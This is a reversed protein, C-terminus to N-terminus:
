RKVSPVAVVKGIQTEIGFREPQHTQIAGLAVDLFGGLNEVDKLRFTSIPTFRGSKARKSIILKTKRISVDVDRWRVAQGNVKLGQEALTLKPHARVQQGDRLARAMRTGFLETLIPRLMDAYTNLRGHTPTISYTHGDKTKFVIAGRQGWRTVTYAERWSTLQHYSYKIPAQKGRQWVFGKDFFKFSETKIRQARGLAFIARVGFVAFVALSFLKGVNALTEPLAMPKRVYEFAFVLTLGSLAALLSWLARRIHPRRRTQSEFLLRPPEIAM